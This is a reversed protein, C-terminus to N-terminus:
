SKQDIISKVSEFIKPYAGCRCLNGSMAERIELDSAKPNEIMLAYGSMIQGPTCFGCQLGDKDIFSQQMSDIKDGELLGEITLVEKGHADMALFHCSYIPKKDLLVTCSGCEGQNCVLKTGTLKLNERLFEALTTNPRIKRSIKKSNVTLSVEVKNELTESLEKKILDTKNSINPVVAYAGIIGSGIDKLFKRRTKDSPQYEDAM